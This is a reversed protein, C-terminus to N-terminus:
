QASYYIISSAPILVSTMFVQSKGGGGGFEAYM